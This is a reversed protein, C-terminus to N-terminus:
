KKCWRVCSVMYVSLSQVPASGGFLASSLPFSFQGYAIVHASAHGKRCQKTSVWGGGGGGGEGLIMTKDKKESKDRQKQVMQVWNKIETLFISYEEHAYGGGGGGGWVCVCVCLFSLAFGALLARSVKGRHCLLAGSLVLFQPVYYVAKRKASM